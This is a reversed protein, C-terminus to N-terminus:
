SFSVSKFWETQSRIEDPFNRAEDTITQDYKSYQTVMSALINIEHIVKQRQIEVFMYHLQNVETIQSMDYNGGNKNTPAALVRVQLLGRVMIGKACWAV